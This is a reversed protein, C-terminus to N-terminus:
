AAGTAVAATTGTRADACAAAIASSAATATLASSRISILGCLMANITIRATGTTGSADHAREINVLSQGGCHIDM